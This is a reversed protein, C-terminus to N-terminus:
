SLEMALKHAKDMDSSALTADLYIAQYEAETLVGVNTAQAWEFVSKARSLRQAAITLIDIPPVATTEPRNTM